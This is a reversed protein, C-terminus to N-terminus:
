VTYHVTRSKTLGDKSVARVKFSHRGPKSTDLLGHNPVTGTCSRIGPGLRDDRCRYRAHVVQGLAYQAHKRPTKIKVSPPGIVTLSASARHGAGTESATVPGSTNRKVGRQTGQVTLSVHCTQGPGLQGGTLAILGRSAHVVLRGGPCTSSAHTHKAVVVGAPLADSFAIGTLGASANPNRITFGLTAKAGRAISSPTFKKAISPPRGVFISASAPAGSGGEASSIAGTTNQQVGDATSRVRVSFSCSSAAPLTTGSLSIVQSGPTATITGGDCSGTLGNPNAVVLGSPLSDTFGVGSLSNNPNPNVVSFSLAATGGPAISKAGFAKTLVPPGIVTVSASATGGTILQPDGSGNDYAGSVQGTTNHQVGGSTGVVTVSLTCSSGGPLGTDSLSISGSGATATAAGGFMSVCSGTEGNPDAVRLGAPLPDTFGVDSLSTSSNPNSVTFTLSTTAGREISDQGFAKALTPATVTPAATVDVSATNSTSGTGEDASVASTVNDKTGTSTATLEVAINCTGGTEDPPQPPGITGGSFTISSSGPTATLTGGCDTSAQNPNAVVLGSPLSDSFSVNHLTTGGPDGNPNQITFYVAVNGNVAVSSASFQKGITAPAVAASAPVASAAWVLAAVILGSSLVRTSSRTPPV